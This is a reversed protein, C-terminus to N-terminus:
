GYFYGLSLRNSISNKSSSYRSNESLDIIDGLKGLISYVSQKLRIKFKKEADVASYSLFLQNRFFTALKNPSEILYLLPVFEDLKTRVISFMRGCREIIQDPNKTAQLMDKTFAVHKALPAGKPNEGFLFSFDIHFIEGDATIMINNLHRDGIGLVYSLVTYFCLNDEYSEIKKGHHLLWSSITCGYESSTALSALTISNPVIELLGINENIPLINYLIPKINLIRAIIQLVSNVIYDRFINDKKYLISGSKSEVISGDINLYHYTGNIKLPHTASSFAIINEPSPSFLVGNNGWPLYIKSGNNSGINANDCSNNSNIIMNAIETAALAPTYNQYLNDILHITLCHNAVFNNVMTDSIFYQQLRSFLLNAHYEKKNFRYLWWLKIAYVFSIKSIEDLLPDIQMKNTLESVYFALYPDLNINNISLQAILKLGNNTLDILKPFFLVDSIDIRENCINPCYLLKCYKYKGHCSDNNSHLYRNNYNICCETYFQKNYRMMHNNNDPLQLVSPSSFIMSSLSSFLRNNNNNNGIIEQNDSKLMAMLWLKHQVVWHRHKVLYSREEPYYKNEGTTGSHFIDLIPIKLYMNLSYLAAFQWKLESTLSKVISILCPISLELKNIALIFLAYDEHKLYCDTCVRV